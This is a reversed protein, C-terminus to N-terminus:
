GHVLGKGGKAGATKSTDSSYPGGAGGGAGANNTNNTGPNTVTNTADGGPSGPYVRVGSMGTISYTGGAGGPITFPTSGVTTAGYSGKKGGKATLNIPGSSFVSDAGDGKSGKGQVVSYTPGMESVPVWTREIRGGGGGGSNATWLGTAGEGGAGGSGQLTVWAGTAGYPVPYNNRAINNETIPTFATWVDTPGISVKTAETAGSSLKAIDSAGVSIGSM